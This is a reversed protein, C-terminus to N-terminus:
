AQNSEGCGDETVSCSLPPHQYLWTCWSFCDRQYEFYIYKKDNCCWYWCESGLPFWVCSIHSIATHQVQGWLWGGSSIVKRLGLLVVTLCLIVPAKIFIQKWVMILTPMDVGKMQSQKRTGPAPYQTPMTVSLWHPIWLSAWTGNNIHNRHLAILPRHHPWAVPTAARENWQHLKLRYQLAARHSVTYVAM